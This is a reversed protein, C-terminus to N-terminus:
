PYSWIDARRPLKFLSYLSVTRTDAKPVLFFVVGQEASTLSKVIVDEGNENKLTIDPLNDGVQLEEIDASSLTSGEGEGPGDGEIQDEDEADTKM